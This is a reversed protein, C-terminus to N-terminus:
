YRLNWSPFWAKRSASQLMDATDDGCDPGGTEIRFKACALIATLHAFSRALAWCNDQIALDSPCGNKQDIRMVARWKAFRAGMEYYHACRKALGDLGTTATEGATRPIEVVGTDVKIGTLIGHAAFYDAFLVGDDTIQGLTEDFMIVGSIHEELGPTTFLMQRYKQRMGESNEVGISAFRKAMTGTSEDAALIGKGAEGLMKATRKLEAHRLPRFGGSGDASLVLCVFLVRALLTNSRM